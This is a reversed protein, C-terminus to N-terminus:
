IFQKYEILISSAMSHITLLSFNIFVILLLRFKHKARDSLLWGELPAFFFCFNSSHLATPALFNTHDFLKSNSNQLFELLALLGFGASYELYRVNQLRWDDLPWKQRKSYNAIKQRQVFSCNKSAIIPWWRWFASLLFRFLIVLKLINTDLSRSLTFLCAIELKPFHLIYLPTFTFLACPGNRNM